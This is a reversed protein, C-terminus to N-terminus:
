HRAGAGALYTLKSRKKVFLMKGELVLPHGCVYVPDRGEVLKVTAPLDRPHILAVDGQLLDFGNRRGEAICFRVYNETALKDRRKLLLALRERALAHSGQDLLRQLQPDAAM